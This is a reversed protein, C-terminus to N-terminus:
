DPKGLFQLVYRNFPIRNEVPLVHSGGVIKILESNPIQDAIVESSSASVVRDETGTIVLTPAKILHLRDLTDHALVAQYQGAIGRTGSLRHYFKALIALIRLPRSNVALSALVRILKGLPVNNANIGTYGRKPGLNEIVRKSIGSREDWRAFTSALILKKVREPYNIGIEQAIMGGMSVGLIHANEIKLFDMLTIVDDAMMRTTYPGRPKDSKGAGRNDPTIVRFYKKFSRTQFFWSEQRAGFGTILVLAEGQGWIRYNLNVGNVRAKPM